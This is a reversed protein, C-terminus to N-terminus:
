QLLSGRQQHSLWVSIESCLLLDELTMSQWTEKAACYLKTKGEMGPRELRLNKAVWARNPILEM